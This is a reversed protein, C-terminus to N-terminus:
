EIAVELRGEQWEQIAERVTGYAGVYVEIGLQKLMDIAGHGIVSCVVVDIGADALIKPMHGMHEDKSFLVKVENTELDFITFTPAQGFHECVYDDLGRVGLTPVCIKM